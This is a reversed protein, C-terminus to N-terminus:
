EKRDHQTCLSSTAWTKVQVAFRVRPIARTPIQGVSGSEAKAPLKEGERHHERGGADQCPERVTLHNRRTMVEGSAPMERSTVNRLPAGIRRRSRTIAPRYMPKAMAQLSM